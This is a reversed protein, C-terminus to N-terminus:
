KPTSAVFGQANRYFDELVQTFAQYVVGDPQLLTYIIALMSNIAVMTIIVGGYQEFVEKM